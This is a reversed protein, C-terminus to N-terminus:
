NPAPGSIVLATAVVQGEANLAEVKYAGVQGLSLPLRIAGNADVSVTNTSRTGAPDTIALTITPASAYGGGLLTVVDGVRAGSGRDSSLWAPTATQAISVIVFSALGAALATGFVRRFWKLTNM